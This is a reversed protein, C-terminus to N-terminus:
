KRGKLFQETISLFSVEEIKNLKCTSIDEKEDTLFCWTYRSYEDYHRMPCDICDQIEEGIEFQYKM